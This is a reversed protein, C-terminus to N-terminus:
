ERQLTVSKTKNDYYIRLRTSNIRFRATDDLLAKSFKDAWEPQNVYTSGLNRLKFERAALYDFEGFISNTTNRGSLKHPNTTDDFTVIIDYGWSNEENKFEVQEQILDEFSIVKWEGNLTQISSDDRFDNVDFSDDACTLLGPIMLGLIVIQKKM